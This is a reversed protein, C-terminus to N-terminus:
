TALGLELRALHSTRRRDLPTGTWFAELRLLNLAAAMYVHDLRTKPLGRYRARRAGHSAAQHMTGEVGARRAYGAQFPIMKEAARAAAQAEALDRPPLTLQRRKGTTCLARAPCPGCDGSSFHVVIADKGRQACPTWSASTTGQPCTVTKADYDVAFGARAYGAGARAQASTGALLPGILAIGWTTLASVVVTTSLYGSDLYSRGPALNKGALDGCIATTMQNGTVTADTTAVHTILNPFVLHACGDDHGRDQAGEGARGAAAQGAASAPGCTCPPPDDCTETVHLKCGLWFEERKVGWRADTDYPSAIRAHGPPLGDGEPEKERRKIVEKGATIARTYNQLLVRRLVDVAPLERLWAPSSEDYVAELLAYGDRAYAIALEKRRAESQPPRWSTMPIGYRSTWDPVCIRQALWDPHAAALAELAARVSEGALELRNLAAVAAVVHTSDTRQKGGAKILGEAALKALLADLAVQELGADAVRGRFEALVTHDFGPDDLPLGLLYQWDIRTRVAEAAQRDALKEARQLVTVLALRSPSWGPRGRIGFAAAFEEDRLWEGLRDRVQVALPRPRKGPYKAAIAAAIQPDPEPWAVPQVCM